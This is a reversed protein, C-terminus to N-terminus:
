WYNHDRGQGVSSHSNFRAIANAPIFVRKSILRWDKTKQANIIVTNMQDYETSNETVSSTLRM